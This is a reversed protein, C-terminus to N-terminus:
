QMLVPNIFDVNSSLISGTGDVEVVLKTVGTVNIEIKEQVTGKGIAVEQLVKGDQNKFTISRSASKDLSEDDFGVSLVLNKYQNNLNFHMVTSKWTGLHQESVLAFGTQGYKKGNIVMPQNSTITPKVLSISVKDDDSVSVKNPASLPTGTVKEGIIVAGNEGDWDIPVGLLEAAARLPVYTSGDVIFPKNTPTKDIGNQMIKVGFYAELNVAGSAAYSVGGFLVAGLVFGSTILKFNKLKSM